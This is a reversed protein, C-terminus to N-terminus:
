KQICNYRNSKERALLSVKLHDTCQTNAAQVMRTSTEQTTTDHHQVTIVSLCRLATADPALRSPVTKCSCPLPDDSLPSLPIIEITHTHTHTHSEAKARTRAACVHVHIRKHITSKSCINNTCIMIKKLPM